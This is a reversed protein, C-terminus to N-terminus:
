VSIIPDFLDQNMLRLPSNESGDADNEQQQKQNDGDEVAEEQKKMVKAVDDDKQQKLITVPLNMMSNMM